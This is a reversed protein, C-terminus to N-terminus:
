GPRTLKGAAVAQDILQDRTAKEAAQLKDLTIGLKQALRDPVRRLRREQRSWGARAGREHHGAAPWVGARGRGGRCLCASGLKVIRM